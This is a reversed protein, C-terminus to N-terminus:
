ALLSVTPPRPVANVVLSRYVFGVASAPLAITLLNAGAALMDLPLAVIFVPAGDRM